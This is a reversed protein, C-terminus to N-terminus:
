IRIHSVAKDAEADLEELSEYIKVIEVARQFM